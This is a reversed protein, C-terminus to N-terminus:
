ANRDENVFEAYVVNLIVVSLMIDNLIVVSLMNGNLMRVRLMMTLNHHEDYTVSLITTKISLSLMFSM